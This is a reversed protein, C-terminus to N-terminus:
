VDGIEEMDENYIEEILAGLEELHAQEDLEHQRQAKELAAYDEAPALMEGAFTRGDERRWTEGAPVFRYGEVFTQCKGDFFPLEAMRRTGDDTLHCRYASDLFVKM